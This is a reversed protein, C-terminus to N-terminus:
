WTAPPWPLRAHSRVTKSSQRSISPFSNRIFRTDILIASTAAINSTRTIVAIKIKPLGKRLHRAKNAQRVFFNIDFYLGAVILLEKNKVPTHTMLIFAGSLLNILVVNLLLSKMEAYMDRTFIRDYASSFMGLAIQVVLFVSTQVMYTEDAYIFGSHKTFAYMLIFSIQMVLVDFFAFDLHRIASDSRNTHM